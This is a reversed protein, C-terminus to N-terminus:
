IKKLCTVIYLEPVPQIFLTPRSSLFGEAKVEWTSLYFAHSVMGLLIEVKITAKEPDTAESLGPLTM